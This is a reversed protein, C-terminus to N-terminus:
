FTEKKDGNNNYNIEQLLYDTELDNGKIVRGQIRAIYSGSTRFRKSNRIWRMQSCEILRDEGSAMKVHGDFIIEENKVDVKATDSVVSSVLSNERYVGVRVKEIEIGKVGKLNLSRFNDCRALVKEFDVPFDEGQKTQVETKGVIKEENGTHDYFDVRLNRMKAIKFFGLSLYGAKKKIIEINDIKISFLKKNESYEELSLVESIINKPCQVKKRIGARIGAIRESQWIATYAIAGIIVIIGLFLWLSIIKSRNMGLM